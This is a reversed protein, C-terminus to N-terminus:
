FKRNLSELISNLRILVEWLEILDNKNYILDKKDAKHYVRNRWKNLSGLKKVQKRSNFGLKRWLEETNNLVKLKHSLMACHMMDLEVGSEKELEFKEQLKKRDNEGLKRLWWDEERYNVILKSLKTEFDSLAIYLVVSVPRKNLDAHNIIGEPTGQDGIFLITPMQNIQRYYLKEIIEILNLKSSVLEQPYYECKAAEM